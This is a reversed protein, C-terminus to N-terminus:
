TNETEVHFVETVMPVRRAATCYVTCNRLAGALVKAAEEGIGNYQLDLTELTKTRYEFPTFMLLHVSFSVACHQLAGALAAVGNQGIM